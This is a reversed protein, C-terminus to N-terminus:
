SEVFVLTGRHKYVEQNLARIGRRHIECMMPTNTCIFIMVGVRRVRRRLKSSAIASFDHASALRIRRAGSGRGLPRQDQDPEIGHSSSWLENRDATFDVYVVNPDEQGGPYWRCSEPRWNAVKAPVDNNIIARGVLTVYANGPDYQYALTLRGSREIERTKRSRLDTPFRVTWADSLLKPNVVRANADGNRDVTIAMCAPVKAIIERAVRLLNETDM